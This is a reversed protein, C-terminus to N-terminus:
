IKGELIYQKKKGTHKGDNSNFKGLCLKTVASRFNACCTLNLNFKAPQKDQCKWRKKDFYQQSTIFVRKDYNTRDFIRRFITTKLSSYYYNSKNM